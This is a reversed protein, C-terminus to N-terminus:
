NEAVKEVPVPADKEVLGTEVQELIAMEVLHPSAEGSWGVLAKWGEVWWPKHPGGMWLEEEQQAL